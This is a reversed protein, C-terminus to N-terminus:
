TYYNTYTLGTDKIQEERSGDEKQYSYLKNETDTLRNRNAYVNM